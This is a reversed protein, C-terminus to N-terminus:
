CRGRTKNRPQFHTSLPHQLAVNHGANTTPTDNTRVAKPTHTANVTMLCRSGLDASLRRM